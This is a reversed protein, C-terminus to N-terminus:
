CRHGFDVVPQTGLFYLEFALQVFKPLCNFLFFFLIPLQDRGNFLFFHLIPLQDNIELIELIELILFFTRTLVFHFPEL